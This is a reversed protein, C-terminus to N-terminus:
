FRIEFGASWLDIDSQGTKSPDGVKRFREYELRVALNEHVALSAGAGYVWNTGQASSRWSDFESGDVLVRFSSDVKWFVAGGKAYVLVRDGIPASVLAELLFGDASSDQTVRAPPGSTDVRLASDGFDVFGGELALYDNFRYGATIKVSSDDEDTSTVANSFGLDIVAARIQSSRADISARGISVTAYPGAHALSASTMVVAMASIITRISSKM